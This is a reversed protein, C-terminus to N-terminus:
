YKNKESAITSLELKKLQLNALFVLYKLYSQMANITHWKMLCLLRVYYLMLKEARNVGTAIAYLANAKEQLMSNTTYCNTEFNVV